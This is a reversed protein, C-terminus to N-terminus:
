KYRGVFKNVNAKTVYTVPVYYNKNGKKGNALDVAATIAAKGIGNADQEAAKLYTGENMAQILQKSLDWGFLKVKGKKGQSRIASIVGIGYNGGTTYFYNLGPNGTILNEACTAAKDVAFKADCRGVVRVNKNGKIASQFGAVRTNEIPSDVTQVIGVEAKGGHAKAYAALALGLQRGVAFNDDGARAAILPNGALVEDVSVAPIKASKLKKLAPQIANPDIPDVIVVDAKRQIFGDIANSQAVPDGNPNNLILKVGRRKAEASMGNNLRVFFQDTLVITTFAVTITRDATASRANNSTGATAAGLVAFAAITTLAAILGIRRVAITRGESPHTVHRRGGQM